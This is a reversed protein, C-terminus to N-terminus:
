DVEYARGASLRLTEGPRPPADPRHLTVHVRSLGIRVILDWRDILDLVTEVEGEFELAGTGVRLGGPPVAVLQGAAEIISYGLVDAVEKRRPNLAVEKKTGTALVRGDVLIVVDHAMRFAEDRSHTVLVTTTSCEALLIPLDDLLQTYTRGDLGALPEDLLMIPARLCVARALSARRSEGGSIQDARRDALAAIGLLRLAAIAQERAEPPPSGRLRLGLELNERLSRRLFVPEQFVFAVHRQRLDPRSGGVTIDGAGPRDLGAILRLLTTKGAGNPGLIATIRNSRIELSPIHLVPRRLHAFEVGAFRIDM